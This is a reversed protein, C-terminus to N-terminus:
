CSNAMAVSYKDVKMIETLFPWLADPFSMSLSCLLAPKPPNKNYFTVVHQTYNM